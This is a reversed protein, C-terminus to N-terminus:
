RVPQIRLVQGLLDPWDQLEVHLGVQRYACPVDQAATDVPGAQRNHSFHEAKFVDLYQDHM